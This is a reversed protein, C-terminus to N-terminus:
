LLLLEPGFVSISFKILVNGYQVGQILWAFTFVLTIKRVRPITFTSCAVATTIYAVSCREMSKSSSVFVYSM